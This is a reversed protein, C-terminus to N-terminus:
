LEAWEKAKEFTQFIECTFHYNKMENRYSNALMLHEDKTAVIAIKFKGKTDSIIDDTLAYIKTHETNIRIENVNSFDNIIYKIKMFGSNEHSEFNSKLIEEAEVDGTFKRILGKSTWTNTHAM